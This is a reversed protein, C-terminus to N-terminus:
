PLEWPAASEWHAKKQPTHAGIRLYTSKRLYAMQALYPEANTANTPDLEPWKGWDWSDWVFKCFDCSPSNAKTDSLCEHFKYAQYSSPFEIRILGKSPPLETEGGGAQLKLVMKRIDIKRCVDCLKSQAEAGRTEMM